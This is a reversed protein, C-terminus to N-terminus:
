SGSGSSSKIIVFIKTLNVISVKKKILVWSGYVMFLVNLSKLCPIGKKGKPTWKQRLLDPELHASGTPFLSRNGILNFTKQEKLVEVIKM